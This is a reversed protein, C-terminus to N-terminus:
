AGQILFSVFTCMAAVEHHFGKLKIYDIRNVLRVLIGKWILRKNELVLEANIREEVKKLKRSSAPKLKLLYVLLCTTAFFIAASSGIFYLYEGLILAPAMLAAGALYFLVALWVFLKGWDRGVINLPHRLAM